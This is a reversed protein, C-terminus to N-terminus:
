GGTTFTLSYPGLPQNDLNSMIGELLEV